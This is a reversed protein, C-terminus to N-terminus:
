VDNDKAGWKIIKGLMLSVVGGIAVWALVAILIIQWYEM